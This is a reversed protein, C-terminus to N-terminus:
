TWHEMRISQRVSLSLGVTLWLLMAIEADGFNWEFLGNIQFGLFVAICGLATGRLLWNEKPVSRLVKWEVILIQVFLGLLVILGPIGLTAGLMIFNNHMHGSREKAEAPKFKEYLKGLDIDGYGTWPRDQIMRIGAKWMYTREINNPHSPNFISALRDQMSAPALCIILALAPVLAFIWKWRIFLIMLVVGALFGLWSSRTFTFILPLLIALGCAAAALRVRIPTQIFVFAFVMLGVIMLVGGSTMYHRFLSLRGALGGIGSFYKWIGIMSVVATAGILAILIWKLHKKEQVAGATLYVIPILLLRKSNVFAQHRNWSFCLSVLEVALYAIFFWDLPTKPIVRKKGKISIWIWLVFSLFLANQTIAISFSMAGVFLLMFFWFVKNLLSNQM